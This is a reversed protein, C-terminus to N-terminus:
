TNCFHAQTMCCASFLHTWPSCMLVYFLNIQVSILHSLKVCASVDFVKVYCLVPCPRRINAFM